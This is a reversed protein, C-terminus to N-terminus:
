TLFSMKNIKKQAIIGSPSYPTHFIIFSITQSAHLYTFFGDNLQQEVCQLEQLALPTLTRPSDLATDRELTSFLHRLQYTPIELVPCLWNIDRLLKQFDNLTKLHDRRIQLKQPGIRHQELITGLYSIPFDKHIKELAIQM